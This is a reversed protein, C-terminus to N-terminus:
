LVMPVCVSIRAIRGKKNDIVCVYLCVRVWREKEKKTEKKRAKREEGERQDRESSTITSHLGEM